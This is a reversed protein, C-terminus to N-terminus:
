VTEGPQIKPKPMRLKRIQTARVFAYWGLQFSRDKADPFKERVKKAVFRGLVLGDIVMIALIVLTVPAAYLQIAPVPALMAVVVVIALPMFLGILHRRSDVVDRVYARVPGRDRPLVYKDDGAAMRERRETAAQRRDEKSGRSRKAAERQTRPPPPVPGRRRAEADRRKPTPRGKSPTLKGGPRQDVAEDVEIADETNTSVDTRQRLFRV